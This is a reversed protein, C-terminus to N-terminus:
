FLTTWSKWLISKTVIWILNKRLIGSVYSYVQDAILLNQHAM